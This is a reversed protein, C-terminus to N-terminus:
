SEGRWSEIVRIKEQRDAAPDYQTLTPAVQRLVTLIADEKEVEPPEASVARHLEDLLPGVARDGMAQMAAAASGRDAEDGGTM